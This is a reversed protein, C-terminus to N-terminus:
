RGIFEQSHSGLSLFEAKAQELERFRLIIGALEHAAESPLIDTDEWWRLFVRIQDELETLAGAQRALSDCM